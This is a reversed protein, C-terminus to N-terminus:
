TNQIPNNPQSHPFIPPILQQSRFRLHNVPRFPSPSQRPYPLRALMRTLIGHQISTTPLRRLQGCLTPHLKTRTHHADFTMFLERRCHLRAVLRFTPHPFFRCGVCPAAVATNVFIPPWPPPSRYRLSPRCLPAAASCSSPATAIPWYASTAFAYSVPPCFMCCSVVCFSM